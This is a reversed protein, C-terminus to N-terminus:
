HFDAANDPNLETDEPAWDLGRWASAERLRPRALAAPEAQFWPRIDVAQGARWRLAVCGQLDTRWLRAHVRDLADLAQASPHGFSNRAGCSILAEQPRLRRVWAAGTASRSGHHGVKLVAVPKLGLKILRRETPQPLDGTLLLWDEVRLVLSARNTDPHKAPRARRRPPLPNLVLWPGDDRGHQGARLSRLPVRRLRAMARAELWRPEQSAQGNWLLVQCPVQELVTALGGVHDADAHSAAAWDLGQMGLARVAPVVSWAGADPRAPGADMLLTRGDGFELLLGDGQGVDLMWLRTEGAHRHAWPLGPWLLWAVLAAAGLGLAPRRAPGQHALCVLAWALFGLVLPYAPAGASYLAGHWHTVWQTSWALFRLVQHLLGGLLWAVGPLRGGLVALPLGLALLVAIALVALLGGLLGPWSLVHFHYALLPLLAWQLALQAGGLRRLWAPWRLPLRVALFPGLCVLSVCAGFSLQFGAEWLAGPQALLILIAGFALSLVAECELDLARALLWVGVLAFARCVPPEFGSASAYAAAFALGLWARRRRWLTLRGALLMWLALALAFHTGSLVLVDAFGARAFDQAEDRALGAKDGFLSARALGLEAGSLGAALGRGLWARWAALAKRWNWAPGARLRLQPWGQRPSFGWAMGRGMLYARLDMQGPGSAADFGRLDGCLQVWDGSAWGQSLLPDVSARGQGQVPRWPGGSLAQVQAQDLRLRRLGSAAQLGEEEVIRGQLRLARQEAAPPADLALALPQIRALGSGLGAVCLAPGLWRRARGELALAAAALACAASAWGLAPSCPASRGLCLGLVLGLCALAMPRQSWARGLGQWGLVPKASVKGGDLQM